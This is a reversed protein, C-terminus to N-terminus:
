WCDSDIAVSQQNKGHAFILCRQANHRPFMVIIM